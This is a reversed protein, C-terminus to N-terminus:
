FGEGGKRQGIKSFGGAEIHEVKWVYEQCFQVASSSEASDWVSGWPSMVCTLTEENPFTWLGIIVFKGNGHLM